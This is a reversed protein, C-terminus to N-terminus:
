QAASGSQGRGSQQTQPPANETNKDQPNNGAPGEVAPQAQPVPQVQDSGPVRESAEQAKKAEEALQAEQKARTARDYSEAMAFRAKVQYEELRARRQELETIAMEEIMHGQRAMVVKIKGLADRIKIRLRTLQKDYGKYSQTAAQRTRVFSNYITKLKEVHEDLERLHETAKTFRDHYELDINWTLVGKLRAIRQQIKEDVIGQKELASEMDLLQQYVIREDVTMLFDPRPSVLMKKLRKDLKDRQEIRLKMKSDLARFQSEIEPLLPEYYAERIKTMEEYADIYSAWHALRRELEALDFYNKLLEQFDHSAMMQTLYYTEPTDPLERLHILWHKDKKLEERVVAKLFAGQRIGTISADLREIEKSYSELAQGYLIAAKGYINLKGYAYPVGLLVEQVSKNTIDRTSLMSWSVLARDFEGNAAAAWGTGLLAKNSFPGNLRVRQLYQKAPAPQEAELLRFGLVLNAKDRMAQVKEEDSQILGVKDLQAIGEQENGNQFLAVGLNYGAYSKLSEEGEISKLLNIAESFRGTAMYIQARLFPEEYRIKEPVHGQLKEITELAILPQQKQYYMKALRYIAENRVSEEVNGEIVAKIARGARNHMRYYLEFDGVSFEAHNIHANLSNLAPEDLGYFQALETDLRSIADFYEDQYAYFLAEGFYLDKLEGQLPASDNIIKENIDEAAVASSTSCIFIILASILASLRLV